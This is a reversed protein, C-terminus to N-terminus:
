IPSKSTRIYAEVIALITTLQEASCESLYIQLRQYDLNETPADEYFFPDASIHLSRILSKLKALSPVNGHNEIEKLYRSSIGSLEALEDYTLKQEMRAKKLRLGMKKDIVRKKAM